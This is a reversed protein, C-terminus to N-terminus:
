HGGPPGGGAVPVTGTQAQTVQQQMRKLESDNSDVRPDRRIIKGDADMLLVYSEGRSDTRLDVVTYGTAFDVGKATSGIIDGPKVSFQERHTEGAQWRFIEFKASEGFVSTVFFSTLAPIHVAPTWQSDPSILAFENALAAPNCWNPAGYMPNKMKYRVKYRYTKGPQATADHAWGVIDGIANAQPNKPDVWTRPDFEGPGPLPYIGQVNPNLQPQQPVFGEGGM